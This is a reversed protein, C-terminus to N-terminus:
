KPCPPVPCRHEAGERYVVGGSTIEPLAAPKAPTWTLKQYDPDSTRQSNACAAFLECLAGGMSHGSCSVTRCQGLKPRLRPWLIDGLQRMQDRYGDHVSEFGCFGGLQVEMASGLEKGFYNIGAITLMCDLTESDQFLMVPDEDYLGGSGSVVTEQAVLKWAPFKAHVDDKTNNVNDYTKFALLVGLIASKFPEEASSKQGDVTLARLRPEYSEQWHLRWEAFENGQQDSPWDTAADPCPAYTSDADWHLVATAMKAHAYPSSIAAADVQHTAPGLVDETYSRLGQFCGDQSLLNTLPPNATGPAGFSFVAQVSANGPALQQPPRADALVPAAALSSKRRDRLRHHDAPQCLLYVAGILGLLAVCSAARLCPPSSWAAQLRPPSDSDLNGREDASMLSEDSDEDLAEVYM